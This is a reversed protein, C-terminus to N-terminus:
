SHFPYGTGRTATRGDRGYSSILGCIPHSSSEEPGLVPIDYVLGLLDVFRVAVEEFPVDLQFNYFKLM